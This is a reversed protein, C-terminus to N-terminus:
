ITHAWYTHIAIYFTVIAIMLILRCYHILSIDDEIGDYKVLNNNFDIATGCCGRSILIPKMVIFAPSGNSDRSGISLRFLMTMTSTIHDYLLLYQAALVTRISWHCITENVGFLDPTRFGRPVTVISKTMSTCSKISNGHLAKVKKMLALTNNINQWLRVCLSRWHNIMEFHTEDWPCIQSEQDVWRPRQLKSDCLSHFTCGRQQSCGWIDELDCSGQNTNPHGHFQPHLPNGKM